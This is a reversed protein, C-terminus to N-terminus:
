AFYDMVLKTSYGSFQHPMNYLTSIPDLETDGIGGLNATSLVEKIRDMIIVERTGNLTKRCDDHCIVGIEIKCTRYSKSKSYRRSYPEDNSLNIYVCIDSEKFVKDIRRNMFVKVEKLESVPNVVDPLTYIDKDKVDSYYLMKNLENDMMMLTSLKLMLRNPFDRIINNM